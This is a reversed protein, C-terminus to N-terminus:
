DEEEVRDLLYEEREKDHPYYYTPKSNYMQMITRTIFPALSALILALLFVLLYLKRRRKSGRREKRTM